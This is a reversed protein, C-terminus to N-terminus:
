VEDLLEFCQNGEIPLRCNLCKFCKVCYNNGSKTVKLEKDIPADCAACLPGEPPAVHIHTPSHLPCSECLLQFVFICTVYM